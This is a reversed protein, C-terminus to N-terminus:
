ARTACSRSRSPPPSWAWTSCCRTGSAPTCCTCCPTSPAAWTCTWRCGTSKRTRTGPRGRDNRPDMFRLYYWCSGAWQPMTNSERTATQGSVPDTSRSGSTSPPWRARAPAPRNTAQGGRAPDAAARGAGARPDHRRGAEAAPVARGLLAAPQVALRAAQLQGQAEGLGKEVLWDTMKAKAEAVGLGDLFDSNIAPGEGTYAKGEWGDPPQVTRVIPLDFKEAFEWDREDQGPVAMIAGTGYGMMVYDAVWIPIEEGTAPNIAYSGTFVGTKEKAIQRDRDSKGAAEERYAEVAERQEDTTLM